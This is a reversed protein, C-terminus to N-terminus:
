CWGAGGTNAIGTLQNRSNWTYTTTVGADTVTALNGNLDYTLTNTGFTSQQNNANYTTAALAPPITTRAFAGGTKIRNGALDYTYILDGIVTAGQKFTLSTLESAVNYVYTVSNGNPYSVSTRM